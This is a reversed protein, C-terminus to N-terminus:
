RKSAAGFGTINPDWARPSESYHAWVFGGVFALVAVAAASVQVKTQRYWPKETPYPHVAPEPEIAIRPPALRNLIEIPADRGLDHVASFGPAQDRWVQWQIRRNEISLLVAEHVNVFSALAAMASARAAPDRAQALAVRLRAVKQPRTLPGDLITADGTRTATVLVEKGGTERMQGTLWVVHRGLAVSFEGPATGVEAGDIWVQGTGHVSIKGQESSGQKAAEFTQIVEPLYHLDDLTRHPDLRYTLAFAERADADRKEGLRSQGLAFALDAYLSIATRPTVRLLIDQGDVADIAAERFNRQALNQEAAIRKRQAAILLLEDDPPLKDVLAAGDSIAPPALEVHAALLDLVKYAVDRVSQDNALDIVAVPRRLPRLQGDGLRM